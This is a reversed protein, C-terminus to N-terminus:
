ITDRLNRIAQAIERLDDHTKGMVLLVHNDGAYKLEQSKGMLLARAIERALDNNLPLDPIVYKPNMATIEGEELNAKQLFWEKPINLKM